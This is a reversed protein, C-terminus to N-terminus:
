WLTYIFPAATQGLIIVASLVLLIIVIPVIWWAKHHVAFGGIERLLRLVYAWKNMACRVYAKNKVRFYVFWM